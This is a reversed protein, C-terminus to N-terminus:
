YCPEADGCGRGDVDDSHSTKVTRLSVRVLLMSPTCGVHPACTARLRVAPGLVKRQCIMQASGGCRDSPCASATGAGYRNGTERYLAADQHATGANHEADRWIRPATGAAQLWARMSTVATASIRARIAARDPSPVAWVTLVPQPMMSRPSRELRFVRRFPPAQWDQPRGNWSVSGPGPLLAATEGPKLPHSWGRPLRRRSAMFGPQSVPLESAPVERFGSTRGHSRSKAHRRRRLPRTM